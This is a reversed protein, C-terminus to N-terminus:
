EPPAGSEGKRQKLVVQLWGRLERINVAGSVLVLVIYVAAGIVLRVPGFPRLLWADLVGVFVAAAVNKAVKVGLEVSFARKGLMVFLPTVVGIETVLTAIACAMGGGGPGLALSPKILLLNCVPNVVM